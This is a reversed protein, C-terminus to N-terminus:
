EYLEERRFDELNLGTEECRNRLKTFDERVGAYHHRHIRQLSSPRPRSDILGLIFLDHLDSTHLVEVTSPIRTETEQDKPINYTYQDSWSRIRLKTIKSCNNIIISYLEDDKRVGKPLGLANTVELEKLVSLTTPIAAVVDCAFRHNNITLTLSEPCYEERTELLWSLYSQPLNSDELVITKLTAPPSLSQLRSSNDTNGPPYSMYIIGGKISLTELCRMSSVTIFLSSTQDLSMRLVEVHIHLNRLNRLRSISELAKDLDSATSFCSEYSLSSLTSIRSTVIDFAEIYHNDTMVPKRFMADIFRTGPSCWPHSLLKRINLQGLYLPLSKLAHQAPCSWTRHVLSMTQLLRSTELIGVKDRDFLFSCNCLSSRYTALWRGM